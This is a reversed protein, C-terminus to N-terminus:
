RLASGNLGERELVSKKRQVGDSHPVIKERQGKKAAVMVSRPDSITRLEWLSKGWGVTISVKGTTNFHHLGREKRKGPNTKRKSEAKRGSEQEL